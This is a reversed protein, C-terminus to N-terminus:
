QNDKRTKTVLGFPTGASIYYFKGDLEKFLHWMGDDSNYFCSTPAFFLRVKEWFSIRREKFEPFYQRSM